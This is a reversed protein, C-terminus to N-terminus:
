DEKVIIEFSIKNSVGESTILLLEKKGSNTTIDLKHIDETQGLFAEDLFWYIVKDSTFAEAQFTNLKGQLDLPLYINSNAVPYKIILESNSNIQKCAPNHSPVEPVVNGQQRLYYDVNPPYNLVSISKRKIGEWCQSCIQMTENEDVIINHHYSCKALVFATQPVDIWLTDQCDKTPSYGSVACVPIQKFDDWPKTFFSSSNDPLETLVKFLIDGAIARGSLHQNGEGTFNGAWVAITWQQDVGVAWADRFGNSTGTKWAFNPFENEFNSPRKVGQLIELTLYCSAPSLLSQHEESNDDTTLRLSSYNGYNALTQYMESLDWLNTEAGGICISLGYSSPERSLSKMGVSKLVSVADYVGIKQTVEYAPINLSKQLAETVTALGRYQKDYNKPLLIGYSKNVDELLSNPTIIGKELAYGYIFPKLISGSSRLAQVGDVYGNTAQSFYAQSGIYAKVEHTQTNSILIALNEIGRSSLYAGEQLALKEMKLQLEHSITTNYVSNALNNLRDGLHPAILPFYYQSTPIPERISNDYQQSDIVKQTMLKKLLLDRKQKLKTTNSGPYLYGPNNPDKSKDDLFNFFDEIIKLLGKHPNSEYYKSLSYLVFAQAYTHKVQDVVKNSSDLMMYYGEHLNDKFNNQLVRFARQAMEEYGIDPYMMSAESFTWLIRANLVCSKPAEEVPKNDLGVAGYFGDGNKEVAYHMWYNLISFLEKEFVERYYNLENKDPMIIKQKFPLFIFM